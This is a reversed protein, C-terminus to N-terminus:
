FQLFSMEFNINRDEFFQKLEKMQQVTMYARFDVTHITETPEAKSKTEPKAEPKPTATAEAKRKQLDALRKGESIANNMDLTSKYVEEAEFGFEPLNSLTELDSAIKQLKENIESRVTELKVSKNLWKEAFIQELRLWEYPNCYSFFTEIQLKKTAKEATEFNKVQTNINDIGGNIIKSLEKIKAEFDDFPKMYEKKKSIREDSIAKDLKRLTALDNKALSIQEETYVLNEYQAVKEALATKLEEYNFPISEPIQVEKIILEM